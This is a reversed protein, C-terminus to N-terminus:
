AKNLSVLKNMELIKNNFNLYHCLTKGTMLFLTVDFCLLIM